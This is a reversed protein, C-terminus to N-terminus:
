VWDWQTTITCNPASVKAFASGSFLLLTALTAFNSMKSLSPPYHSWSLSMGADPTNFNRPPDLILVHALSTWLV